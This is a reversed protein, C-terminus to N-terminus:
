LGIDLKLLLARLIEGVFLFIADKFIACVHTIDDNCDPSMHAIHVITTITVYKISITGLMVNTKTNLM